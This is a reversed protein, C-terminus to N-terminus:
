GVSKEAYASLAQQHKSHNNALEIARQQEIQNRQTAFQNMTNQRGIQYDATQNGQTRGLADRAYNDIGSHFTGRNLQDFVEANREDFQSQQMRSLALDYASRASNTDHQNTTLQNNAGENILNRDNLYNAEVPAPLQLPSAGPVVPAAQATRANVYQQFATQQSPNLAQLRALVGQQPPAAAGGAAVAAGPTAGFTPRLGAPPKPNPVTTVAPTYAAM